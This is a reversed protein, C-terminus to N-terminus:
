APGDLLAKVKELLAAPSFPKIFYEQAGMEKATRIDNPYSKSSVVIIPTGKAESDRLKRCLEFGHMRPMFIDVILLDPKVQAAMALAEVGDFAEHVEFSPSLLDKIIGRILPDDDVILIKKPM